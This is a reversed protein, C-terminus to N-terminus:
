LKTYGEDNCEFEKKNRMRDSVVNYIFEVAYFAVLLGFGTLQMTSFVVSLVIMDISFQWVNPLFSLKQLRASESYKFAKAKANQTLITLLCSAVLWIWAASSLEYVFDFSLGSLMMYCAALLALSMNQYASCLEEPMKKMKRMAIDGGALLIPQSILAIMAWPNSEM